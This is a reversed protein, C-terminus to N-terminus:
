DHKKKILLLFPKIESPSYFTGSFFLHYYESPFVCFLFLKKRKKEVFPSLLFSGIKLSISLLLSLLSPRVQFPFVISSCSIIRRKQRRKSEKKKEQVSFCSFAYKKEKKWKKETREM